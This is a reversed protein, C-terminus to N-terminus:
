MALLSSRSTERTSSFPHSIFITQQKNLNLAFRLDRLSVRSRTVTALGRLDPLNVGSGGRFVEVLLLVVCFVVSFDWQEATCRPV